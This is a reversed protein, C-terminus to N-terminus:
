VKGRGEAEDRRWDMERSVGARRLVRTLLGVAGKGGQQGRLIRGGGEEGGMGVRTGFQEEAGGRLHYNRARESKGRVSEGVGQDSLVVDGEGFLGLAAEVFPRVLLREKGELESRSKSNLAGRGGRFRREGFQTCLRNGNVEQELEVRYGRSGRQASMRAKRDDSV